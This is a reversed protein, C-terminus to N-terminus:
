DFIAWVYRGKGSLDNRTEVRAARAARFIAAVDGAQGDGVEVAIAGGARLLPRGWRALHRYFFLGEDPALLAEAPEYLRVSKDIRGDDHAIYPPNSIILDLGGAMRFNELGDRRIPIVRMDLRYRKVNQMAIKIARPSIDTAWIVSFPFELALYVALCGSGTGFDLIKYEGGTKEQADRSEFNGSDFPAEVNEFNRKTEIRECERLLECGLLALGETEQRPILVGPAVGVRIGCFYVYGLVYALPVGQARGNAIREIEASLGSPAAVDPEAWFDGIRMGFVHEIIRDAEFRPFEVDAISALREM